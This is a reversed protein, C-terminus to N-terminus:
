KLSAAHAGLCTFLAQAHEAAGIGLNTLYGGDEQSIFGKEFLRGAAAIAEPAAAKHLKIGAQSTTLDFLLLLDIEAIMDQTFSM